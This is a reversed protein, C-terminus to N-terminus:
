LRSAPIPKNLPFELDRFFNASNAYLKGAERYSRIQQHSEFPEIGSISRQARPPAGAALLNAIQSPCPRLATGKQKRLLTEPCLESTAESQL